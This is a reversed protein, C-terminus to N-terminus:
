RCGVQDGVMRAPLTGKDIMGICLAPPSRIGSSNEDWFNDFPSFGSSQTPEDLLSKVKGGRRLVLHGVGQAHRLEAALM